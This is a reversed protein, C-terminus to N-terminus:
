EVIFLYGRNADVAVASVKKLDTLVRRVPTNLVVDWAFVSTGDTYLAWHM